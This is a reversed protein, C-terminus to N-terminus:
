KMLEYVKKQVEKYDYGAAELRFRRENGVGWKGKIVEKAVAVVADTNSPTVASQISATTDAAPATEIVPAAADAAVDVVPATTDTVPAPDVTEAPQSLLPFSDVLNVNQDYVLMYGNALAASLEQTAADADSEPSWITLEMGAPVCTLDNGRIFDEVGGKTYALELSVDAYPDYPYCAAEYYSYGDGAGDDKYWSGDYPLRVVYKYGSQLAYGYSVITWGGAIGGFENEYQVSKGLTPQQNGGGDVGFQFWDEAAAYASVGNGLVVGLTMAGAMVLSCVRKMKM